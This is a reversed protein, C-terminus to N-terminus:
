QWAIGDVFFKLPAAGAAAAWAFGGIANSYVQGSLDISYPTWSTTLTVVIRANVSDHYTGGLIGGATFTVIEGGTSGKAWFTVRTAQIPMAYGPLTGWNNSPYQWYVGAWGSRAPTPPVYTVVHCSGRAGPSAREGNGCDKPDTQLLPTMAIASPATGDGMYGSPTFVEDVVVPGQAIADVAAESDAEPGGDAISVDPVGDAEADHSSEDAADDQGGADLQGDDSADAIDESAVDASGDPQADSWDTGDSSSDRAVPQGGEDSSSSSATDATSDRVKDAGGDGPAGGLGDTGAQACAADGLPLALLAGVAFLGSFSSTGAMRRSLPVGEVHM